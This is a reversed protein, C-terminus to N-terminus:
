QGKEVQNAHKYALNLFDCIDMEEAERDSIIDNEIAGEIAVIFGTIADAKIKNIDKHYIEIIGMNAKVAALEDRLAQNESKLEVIARTMNRLASIDTVKWGKADKAMGEMAEMLADYAIQIKSKSM